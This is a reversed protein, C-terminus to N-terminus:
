ESRGLTLSYVLGDDITRIGESWGGGSKACDSSVIQLTDLVQIDNAVAQKHRMSIPTLGLRCQESLVQRRHSLDNQSRSWDIDSLTEITAIEQSEGSEDDIVVANWSTASVQEISVTYWPKEQWDYQINCGIASSGIDNDYASCETNSDAPVQFDTAQTIEFNLRKSSQSDVIFNVRGIITGQDAVPETNLSVGFNVPYSPSTSTIPISQQYNTVRSTIEESRILGHQRLVWPIVNEELTIDGIAESCASTSGPVAENLSSGNRIEDLNSQGDCDDDFRDFGASTFELEPTIILLDPDTYIQRKEELLLHTLTFWQLTIDYMQNAQLDFDIQWLGDPFESGQFTKTVNDITIELSLDSIPINRLVAPTQATYKPETLPITDSPDCGTLALILVMAAIISRSDM